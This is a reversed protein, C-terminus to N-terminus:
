APKQQCGLSAAFLDLLAREARAIYGDQRVIEICHQLFAERVPKPQVYLTQFAASVELVIGKEKKSRRPYSSATYCKLVRVFEQNQLAESAGSSEVILSLLLAFESGMSDFKKVHRGQASHDEAM